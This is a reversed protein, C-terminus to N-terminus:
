LSCLSPVVSVVPDSGHGRWHEGLPKTIAAYAALRSTKSPSGAEMRGEPGTTGTTVRGAGHPSGEGGPPALRRHRPHLDAGARREPQPDRQPNPGHRPRPPVELPHDGAGRRSRDPQGRAPDPAAM